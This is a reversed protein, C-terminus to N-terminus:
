KVSSAEEQEEEGGDDEEETRADVSQVEVVDSSDGDEIGSSTGRDSRQGLVEKVLKKGEDM